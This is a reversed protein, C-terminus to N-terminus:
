AACNVAGRKFLLRMVTEWAVQPAPESRAGASVPTKAASEAVMAERVQKETMPVLELAADQCVTFSASPNKGMETECVQVVDSMGSFGFANLARVPKGNEDNLLVVYSPKM